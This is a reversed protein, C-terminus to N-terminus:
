RSKAAISSMWEMLRWIWAWAPWPSIATAPWLMLSPRPPMRSISNKAWVWCSIRPPRWGAKRAGGGLVRQIRQRCLAPDVRLAALFQLAVIAIQARQLMPQLHDLVLLGM